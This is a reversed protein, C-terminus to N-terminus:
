YDIGIVVIYMLCIDFSVQVSEVDKELNKKM